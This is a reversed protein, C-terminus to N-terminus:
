AFVRSLEEPTYATFGLRTANPHLADLIFHSSTRLKVGRSRFSDIWKEFAKPDSLDGSGEVWLAMGGSLPDFRLANPFHLALADTLAGRREVAAKRVKRIQRAYDGDVIMESVSWELVRDGQGDMRQRAKALRDALQKPAALFGLRLGPALVRSLSGVYIVQGTPDQAAMPKLPSRVLDHFDYELDMEVIAMRHSQALEILRTRRPAELAVGTPYQCQPSLVLMQIPTTALLIELADIQLGGGDVPVPHLQAGSAQRISDWWAPNGPSEVAVHAGPSLLAQALLNLAMASGRTILLNEADIRLARQESLFTTLAERLRRQGKAEGEKLLEAGRLRLARHYARSMAAMPALRADAVGESLDMMSPATETIPNLRSPLDFGPSTPPEPLKGELAHGNPTLTPLVQVVFYGSRPRSEIWGQAQLERLASIITSQSVGLKNGLERMGPLAVGPLIRGERIASAINRTVQLYLPDTGTPEFALNLDHARMTHNWAQRLALKACPCIADASM